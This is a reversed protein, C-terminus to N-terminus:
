ANGLEGNLLQTIMKANEDQTQREIFSPRDLNGNIANEPSILRVVLEAFERVGEGDKGYVGKAMVLAEVGDRTGQEKTWFQRDRGQNFRGHGSADERPPQSAEYVKRLQARLSPYLTFLTQLDQSSILPALVDPRGAAAMTGARPPPQSGNSVGMDAEKAIPKPAEPVVPHNAKHEKNCGISCSYFILAIEAHSFQSFKSSVLSARVSHM